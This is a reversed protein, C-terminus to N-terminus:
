AAERPQDPQREVYQRCACGEALCIGHSPRALPGAYRHQSQQHSCTCVPAQYGDTM